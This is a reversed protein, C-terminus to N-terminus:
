DPQPQAHGVAVPQDSDRCGAMAMALYAGRRRPGFTVPRPQTSSLFTSRSPLSSPQSSSSHWKPIRQWPQHPQRPSSLDHHKTM